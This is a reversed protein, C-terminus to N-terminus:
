RHFWDEVLLALPLLYLIEILNRREFPGFNILVQAQLADKHVPSLDSRTLSTIVEPHELREFFPRVQTLPEFNHSPLPGPGRKSWAIHRKLSFRTTNPPRLRKVNTLLM